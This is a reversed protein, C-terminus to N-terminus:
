SQANEVEYSMVYKMNFRKTSFSTVVELFVARDWSKLQVSSCDKFTDSLLDGRPTLVKIYVTKM